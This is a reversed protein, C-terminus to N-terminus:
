VHARGIEGHATYAAQPVAKRDAMHVYSTWRRGFASRIMGTPSSCRTLRRWLLWTACDLASWWANPQDYIATQFMTYIRTARRSMAVPTRTCATGCDM